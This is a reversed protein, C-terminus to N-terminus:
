LFMTVLTVSAHTCARACVCVCVCVCVKVDVWGMCMNVPCPDVEEQRLLDNSNGNSTISDTAPAKSHGNSKGNSHPKGNTAVGNGTSLATCISIYSYDCNQLINAITQLPHTSGLPSMEPYHVGFKNLCQCIKM